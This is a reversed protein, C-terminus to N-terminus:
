ENVIVMEDLLYKMGAYRDIVWLIYQSNATISRCQEPDFMIDSMTSEWTRDFNIGIFAGSGDLVPSGSNGGTTHNSALFDIILEGDHDYPAFDRQRILQDLREPIRYDPVQTNTKKELIGQATSHHLYQVADRPYSGEVKGYTIRLTSNADPFFNQEPRMERLGATYLRYLSDLKSNLSSEVPRITEEQYNALSMALAFAPDKELKRYDSAKYNDLLDMTKSESALISRSFLRDAYKQLDTGYQRRIDMLVPPVLPQEALALYRDLMVTLIRQDTGQHYDKFFASTMAKLREVLNAIEETDANSEKSKKVLEDFGQAFRVLEIRRGAENYLITAYRFPNLEQYLTEFANLLGAYRGANEPRSAWQAFEEELETKREVADLRELGRIEGQWRKWANSVGSHKATYQIRIKDSADMEQSYIDLTRTRLDISVPNQKELIYKVADSTLYQSTRGPFGYVLTFDDQRVGRNSVPFYHEPRYPKNDPSFDAPENDANAYVRFLSFDGTHRPWMWNDEDGGFSGISEPPAGVLRVDRYVQYVFLFYENGYYFPAVQTEYKGDEAAANAIERTLQSVATAREEETMGERLKPIIQDTVDEMRVLLTITLGPNPLEEEMSKAWFGHTLYDNEVSSHRQIQGLGCHHNTILLGEPSLFAGTCGRGFRVIGDKLSPGNENYLDSASLQLGMQQMTEINNGILVPLWMGETAFGQLQISLVFALVLIRKFM